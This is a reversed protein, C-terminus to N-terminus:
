KYRLAESPDVGAARRAPVCAALAAIAIMFSTAVIPAISATPLAGFVNRAAANGWFAAVSGILLGAFVMGLADRVVTGIVDGRTAGLAMRIGIENTRRAVTYALLGYLGLAALAAGLAGFLGSLSAILREPVVSADVQDALTTIKVPTAKLLERMVHQVEGAVAEPNNVGIWLAFQSPPTSQQFANLYITRPPPDHLDLYKADGAVGVIQYPGNDGDFAIHKGLPSSKGFYHRAIAQNIIAVRASGEDEFRFDRGALLPTGLTEFYKPGVWNLSIYRRDEPREGHGEVTVFRSAGAGSIPSAACITASRVGPITELRGLLDRYARSLQEGKYGSDSPDLRVLLVHDCRFGLDVSELSSLHSVFLSAASLLVVSLAVQTVVLSRGFLRRSRTEIARGVARLSSAPAPTFASLAPTLGFLVGTSM